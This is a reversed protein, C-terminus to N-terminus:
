LAYFRVEHKDASVHYGGKIIGGSVRATSTVLSDVHLIKLSRTASAQSESSQCTAPPKLPPNNRLCHLGRSGRRLLEAGGKTINADRLFEVLFVLIKM